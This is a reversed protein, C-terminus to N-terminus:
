LLSIRRQPLALHTRVKTGQLAPKACLVDQASQWLIVSRITNGWAQSLEQPLANLLQFGSSAM